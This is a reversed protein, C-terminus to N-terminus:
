CCDNAEAGHARILTRGVKVVRGGSAIGSRILQGAHLKIKHHCDAAEQRPVWKGRKQSENLLWNVARAIQAATKGRGAHM